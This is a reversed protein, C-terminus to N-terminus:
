AALKGFLRGYVRRAIRLATPVPGWGCSSTAFEATVFGDVMDQRGAGGVATLQVVGSVVSGTGTAIGHVRLPTARSYRALGGRRSAAGALPRRSNGCSSGVAGRPRRAGSTVSRSDMARGPPLQRAVVRQSEPGGIM